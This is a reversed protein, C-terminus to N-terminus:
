NAYYTPGCANWSKDTHTGPQRACMLFEDHQATRLYETLPEILLDDM